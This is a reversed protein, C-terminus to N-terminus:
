GARPQFIRTTTKIDLVSSLRGGYQAPMGGKFLSVDKIADSNFTSFFGFLHSANYVIAEDLLMLNQDSAGGRVYFGTNGEGAAEVGPLLTITKLIDREGLLVPVNNVQSMDLKEVGMQATTINTNNNRTVKSNIVVENLSNRPTLSINLMTDKALIVRQSIPNYGVYSIVLTYSGRPITLSYFGYGNSVSGTKVYENVRVSAGILEEGTAADRINGSITFTKQAFSSFPVALLFVLCILLILRSRVSTFPPCFLKLM